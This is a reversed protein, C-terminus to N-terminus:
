PLSCSCQQRCVATIKTKKAKCAEEAMMRIVRFYMTIIIVCVGGDLWKQTRYSSHDALTARFAPDSRRTSCSYCCSAADNAPYDHVSYCCLASLAPATHRVPVRVCVRLSPAHVAPAQVVLVAAKMAAAAAAAGAAAGSHPRGVCGGGDARHSRPARLVTGAWGTAAARCTPQQQGNAPRRYIWRLVRPGDRECVSRVTERLVTGMWSAFSFSSVRQGMQKPAYPPAAKLLQHAEAHARSGGRMCEGSLLYCENRGRTREVRVWCVVGRDPGGPLILLARTEITQRCRKQAAQM